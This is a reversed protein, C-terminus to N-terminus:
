VCVFMDEFGGGLVCFIFGCVTSSSDTTCAARVDCVNDIEMGGTGSDNNMLGTEFDNEMGENGGDVGEWFIGTMWGSISHMGTVCWGLRENLMGDTSSLM